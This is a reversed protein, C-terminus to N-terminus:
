RVGDDASPVDAEKRLEAVLANALCRALLEEFAALEAREREGGMAARQRLQAGLPMDVRGPSGDTSIIGRIVIPKSLVPHASWRVLKAAFLPAVRQGLVVPGGCRSCVIPPLSSPPKPPRPRARRRAPPKSTPESM